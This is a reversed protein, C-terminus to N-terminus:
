CVLMTHNQIRPESHELVLQIVDKHGNFCAYMFGTRGFNDRALEIKGISCSRQPRKQLSIYICYM